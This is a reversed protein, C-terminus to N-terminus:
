RLAVARKKVYHKQRLLKLTKKWRLVYVYFTSKKFTIKEVYSTFTSRLNKLRLAKIENM